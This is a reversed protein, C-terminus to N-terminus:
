DDAFIAVWGDAPLVQVVGAAPPGLLTAMDPAPAAPPTEPEVPAADAPEDPTSPEGVDAVVPTGRPEITLVVPMAALDAIDAAPLEADLERPPNGRTPVELGASRLMWRDSDSVSASLLVRVAALQDADGAAVFADLPPRLKGRADATLAPVTRPM